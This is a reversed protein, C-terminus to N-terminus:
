PFLCCSFRRIILLLLCLKKRKQKENGNVSERARGIKTKWERLAM